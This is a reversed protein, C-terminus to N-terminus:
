SLAAPRSALSARRAAQVTNDVLMAVTVPGVGGPVPTIMSAVEKVEDFDVDGVLRYGRKASPDPVRNIGVDVVVTGPRVMDAKVWQPDGTAIVLIDGKRMLSGIDHTHTHCLIITSNAAHKVEQSLLLALPKGVINSRGCIVVTKGDPDVGLHLLMRLIGAPTAPVFGPRGVALLGMNTPHLGDVDKAPDLAEIIPFPDLHPPLPLQVLIGHFSEENNLSRILDLLDRHTSSSPLTFVRSDVGVRGCAKIKNRVYVHSAPDDGVLVAALGPNIGEERLAAVDRAAEDLIAAAIAKGDILSATM